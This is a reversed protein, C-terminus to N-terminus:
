DVDVVRWEGEERILTVSRGGTLRVRAEDGHIESELDLSDSTADLYDRIEAEVEARSDQSLVRLVGALSRRMLARRLALVADEPSGLSPADLVGAAIRLQGSEEVMVVRGGDDLDVRADVRAPRRQLSQELEDVQTSLEGSADRMRRAFAEESTRARTAEDLLLYAAHADDARVAAIYAALTEDAGRRAPSSACGVSCLLTVLIFRPM